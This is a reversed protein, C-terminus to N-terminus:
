EREWIFKGNEKYIKEGISYENPFPCHVRLNNKDEGEIVLFNKGVIIIKFEEKKYQFNQKEFDSFSFETEYGEM